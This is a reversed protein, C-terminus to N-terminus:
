FITLQIKAGFQNMKALPVLLARRHNVKLDCYIAHNTDSITCNFTFYCDVTYYELLLHAFVQGGQDLVLGNLANAVIGLHFHSYFHGGHVFLGILFRFFHSRRTCTTQVRPLFRVETCTQRVTSFHRVRVFLSTISHSNNM